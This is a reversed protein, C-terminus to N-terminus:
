RGGDPKPAPLDACVRLGIHISRTTPEGKNRNYLRQTLTDYYWAGGRFVVQDPSRVSRTLEYVSGVLDAVGFPSDSGPHSGVEDPGFSRAERGYTEDYNADDPALRDGHPFLRDDAGRGAREWEFEDCLRAGPTRGSRDLWRTYALADEYSVASVPFRRWDQTTLRGRAAYRVPEGERATVLETTPQMRLVFAGDPARRLELLGRDGPGSLASPIRRAQEEHPLARLFEIWDAFSVENQGILYGSTCHEHLPPADYFGQRRSEEDASGFLFCGPPVYVFGAPVESPLTLRLVRQEGRRLLVPLRVPPGQQPTLELLYSGAPLSLPAGTEGPASVVRLRRSGEEDEYRQVRLRAPPTTEIRLQAPQALRQRWRGHRDFNTLQHVLQDRQTRQHSREALLIREYTLESLLEGFLTLQGSRAWATELEQYARLFGADAAKEHALVQAWLQEARQQRSEAEASPAGATADFLAFAEQRGQLAQAAHARGSAFQQEAVGIHRRSIQATEYRDRLEAGLYSLGLVLPVALFPLVRLWRRLSSYRRSALLFERVPGPLEPMPLAEAELLQRRRWLAERTRGLRQWEMAAGELRHLVARHGAQEDLSTRLTAWKQFLAEHAIEYAASGQRASVTVLRAEVLAALARRADDSELSLEHEQRSIRTQESSVLRLLLRLSHSRQVAPLAQLARDAHRALAGEVGGIADLASATILGDDRQRLEWLESLAFQLLPLGGSMGEASTVLTNVLAESEFRGGCRRAPGVIADRISAASLPRLLFFAKQIHEALGPLTSLRTLYDGRVTLLLRIGRAPLALDAVIRGFLAAEAPESVTLLEEAQDIFLLTGARRHPRERLKLGLARPDSRLLAYLAEEKMAVTDALVAALAEVPRRGPALTRVVFNMAADLAGELVQPLVGARCLSSKGVGSDGAVLVVQGTRLRGIVERVEASRGFFLGRHEAFFPQLGRYPNAVLEDRLPRSAAHKQLAALVASGSEYRQAPERCLCREVIAAFDADVGPATSALPADRDDPIASPGLVDSSSVSAREWPLHGACLEYLILGLAYVDSRATGPQGVRVEPPLYRPTGVVVGTGDILPASALADSLQALGFDLLKVEGTDSYMVNSPKLDRHIVGQRHAVALGSALGLGIDLARQWSMPRPLEALSCGRVFESVLFPVGGLEGVHHLTVVNPHNLRALARAEVRFRAHAEAGLGASTLFKVAVERDLQTDHYLHVQGMSGRGLPRVLRLADIRAPVEALTQSATPAPPAGSTDDAVSLARAAETFLDLCDGCRALHAQVQSLQASEMRGDLWAALTEDTPCGEVAYM